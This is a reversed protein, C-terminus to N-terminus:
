QTGAKTNPWTDPQVQHIYAMRPASPGDKGDIGIGMNLFFPVHFHIIGIWGNRFAHLPYTGLLM